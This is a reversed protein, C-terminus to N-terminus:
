WSAMVFLRTRRQPLGFDACNMVKWRVSFGRSTFMNIVANFFIPHRRILGSTQELTVIRPKAKELLNFIAFLSATNMDDDKGQITHADSFFQCPPSLHCIDVKYDGKAESFQNAWINYIPTGFFNKQYNQCAELNFDFAWNIRLGASVAGRSMGGAGSFCDGFTYRRRRAKSAPPKIATIQNHQRCKEVLRSSLGPTNNLSLSFPISNDQFLRPTMPLSSSLDPSFRQRIETSTLSPKSKLYTSTPRSSEERLSLVSRRGYPNAQPRTLDVIDNDDETIGYAQTKNIVSSRATISLPTSTELYKTLGGTTSLLMAKSSGRSASNKRRSVPTPLGSIPIMHDALNLPTCMDEVSDSSQSRGLTGHSDSSDSEPSPYRITRSLTRGMQGDYRSRLDAKNSEARFGRDMRKSLRTPSGLAVNASRKIQVPSSAPYYRSSVKGEYRKEFTGSSSSTKFHANIKVTRPSRDRCERSLIPSQGLGRGLVSIADEDKDCRGERPRSISSISPKGLANNSGSTPNRHALDDSGLRISQTARDPCRQPEIQRVLAGVSGRKMPDGMPFDPGSPAKLSAWSPIGRNSVEEQRLFEKEGPLWGEQSGGPVTHGRWIKRLEEDKTNNDSRQDCEDERLRHFGKEHWAYAARAKANPYFCLYKFRCVLVRDNEVTEPSEKNEDERWSLAPFSQNTLRIRRRKVVNHVPVTEMGQLKVDRPDDEDVHLIWCVENLKRDIVGNLERTRRFKWGRLTVSSTSTDQIIHVIRLFDKDELEVYVKEALPIGKYTFNNLSVLPSAIPLNRPITISSKRSTATNVVSSAVSLRRAEDEADQAMWLTLDGDDASDEDDTLQMISPHPFSSPRTPPMQASASDSSGLDSTARRSSVSKSSTETAAIPAAPPTFCWSPTTLHSSNLKNTASYITSKDASQPILQPPRKTRSRSFGRMNHLEASIQSFDESAKSTTSNGINPDQLAPQLSTFQHHRFGLHTAQQHHQNQNPISDTALYFNVTLRRNSTRLPM